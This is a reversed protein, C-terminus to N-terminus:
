ELICLDIILIGIDMKKLQFFYLYLIESLIYLNYLKCNFANESHDSGDMAVVITRESEAM